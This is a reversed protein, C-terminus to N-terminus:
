STFISVKIKNKIYYIYNYERNYVILHGKIFDNNQVIASTVHAFASSQDHHKMLIEQEKISNNLNSYINYSLISIFISLVFCILTLRKIAVFYLLCVFILLSIYFNSYWLAGALFALAIYFM